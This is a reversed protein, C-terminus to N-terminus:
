KHKTRNFIKQKNIQKIQKYKENTKIYSKKHTKKTPITIIKPMKFTDVLEYVKPQFQELLKQTAEEITMETFENPIHVIATAHQVDDTTQIQHMRLETAIKERLAIDPMGVFCVIIDNM